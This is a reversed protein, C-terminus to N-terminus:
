SSLGNKGNIQCGATEQKMGDPYKTNWIIKGKYGIQKKIM